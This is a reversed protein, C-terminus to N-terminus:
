LQPVSEKRAKTNGNRLYEKVQGLTATREEKPTRGLRIWETERIIWRPALFDRLREGCDERGIELVLLDDLRDRFHERVRAHHASWQERWLLVAQRWDSAFWRPYLGEWHNLRSCIWEDRDRTNLIFRSGPYALDLETFLDLYVFKREPAFEMDTFADVHPYAALLPTGAAHARYIYRAIWGQEWHISPIGNAHFFHHLAQTGCKNFGIQFIRPRNQM